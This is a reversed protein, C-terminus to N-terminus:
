LNPRMIEYGFNALFTEIFGKSQVLRYFTSKNETIELQFIGGLKDQEIIKGKLKLFVRGVEFYNKPWM